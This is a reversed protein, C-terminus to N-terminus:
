VTVFSILLSLFPSGPGCTVAVVIRTLIAKAALFRQIVLSPVCTAMRSSESACRRCIRRISRWQGLIGRRLSRMASHVRLPMGM